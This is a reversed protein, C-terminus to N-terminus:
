IFLFLTFFIYTNKVLSSFLELLTWSFLIGKGVKVCPTSNVAVVVVTVSAGHEDIASTWSELPVPIKSIWYCKEFFFFISVMIASILIFWLLSVDERKLIFNIYNIFMFIVSLFPQYRILILYQVELYDCKGLYDCGKRSWWFTVIQTRPPYWFFLFSSKKWDDLM